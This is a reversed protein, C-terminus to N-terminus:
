LRFLVMFPIQPTASTTDVFNVTYTYDFNVGSYIAEM